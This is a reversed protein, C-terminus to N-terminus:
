WFPSFHAYSFLKLLTVSYAYNNILMGSNHAEVVEIFIQIYHMFFMVLTNSWNSTQEPPQRVKFCPNDSYEIMLKADYM